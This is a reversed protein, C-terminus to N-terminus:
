VCKYDKSWLIVPFLMVEKDKYFWCVEFCWNFNYITLSKNLTIFTLDYPFCFHNVITKQRRHTKNCISYVRRKGQVASCNCDMFIKLKFFFATKGKLILYYINNTKRCVMYSMIILIQPNKIQSLKSFLPLLKFM